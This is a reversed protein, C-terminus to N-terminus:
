KKYKQYIDALIKFDEKKIRYLYIQVSIISGRVASMTCNYEESIKKLTERQYKDPKLGYFRLFRDKQMTTKEKIDMVVRYFKEKDSIDINTKKIVEM